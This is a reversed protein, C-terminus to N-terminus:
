SPYISRKFAHFKSGLRFSDMDRMDGPSLLHSQLFSGYPAAVLHKQGAIQVRWVKQGQEEVTLVESFVRQDTFVGYVGAWGDMKIGLTAGRVQHFPKGTGGGWQM